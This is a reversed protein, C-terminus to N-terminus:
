FTTLQTTAPRTKSHGGGRADFAAGQYQRTGTM